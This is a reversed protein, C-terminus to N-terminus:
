ALAVPEETQAFTLEGTELWRNYAEQAAQIIPSNQWLASNYLGGLYASQGQAQSHTSSGLKVASAVASIAFVGQIRM